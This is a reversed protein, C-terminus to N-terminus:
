SSWLTHPGFQTVVQGHRSFRRGESPLLAEAIYFCGYYARSAAFDANEARLLLEAADFSREAKGLLAKIERM